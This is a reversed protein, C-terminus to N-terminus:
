KLFLVSKSDSPYIIMQVQIYISAKTKPIYICILELAAMFAERWMFSGGSQGCATGLEQGPGPRPHMGWSLIDKQEEANGTIM